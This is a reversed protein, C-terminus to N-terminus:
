EAPVQGRVLLKQAPLAYYGERDTQHVVLDTIEALLWASDVHTALFHPEQKYLTVPKNNSKM